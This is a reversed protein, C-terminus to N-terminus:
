VDELYYWFVHGIPNAASLDVTLANGAPLRWFLPAPPLAGQGKAPLNLRYLVTSGYKLLVTTDVSGENQLQGGVLVIRQGGTPAAIGVNGGSLSDVGVSFLQASQRNSFESFPNSM